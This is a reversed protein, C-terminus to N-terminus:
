YKYVTGNELLKKAQKWNPLTEVEITVTRIEKAIKHSKKMAELHAGSRAFEQLETENNWLTMTYHM